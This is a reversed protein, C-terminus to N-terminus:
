RTTTIKSFINGMFIYNRCRITYVVRVNYYHENVNKSVFLQSFNEVHITATRKFESGTNPFSVSNGRSLNPCNSSHLSVYRTRRVSWLVRTSKGYVCDSPIIRIIIVNVTPISRRWHAAYPNSQVKSSM